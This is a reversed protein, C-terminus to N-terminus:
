EEEEESKRSGAWLAALIQDPEEGEYARNLLDLLIANTAIIVDHEPDASV